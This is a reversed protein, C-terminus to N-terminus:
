GRDELWRGTTEAGAAHTPLLLHNLLLTKNRCSSHLALPIVDRQLILRTISTCKGATWKSTMHRRSSARARVFVCVCKLPKNVGGVRVLCSLVIKDQGHRRHSSFQCCSLVTKDQRSGTELKIPVIWDWIYQPSSIVQFNSVPRSLVFSNRTKDGITNVGVAHVVCSLKTKDTDATHVLQLQRQRTQTWKTWRAGCPLGVRGAYPALQNIM